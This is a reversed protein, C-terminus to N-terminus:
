LGADRYLYAKCENSLLNITIVLELSRNKIWWSNDGDEGMTKSPRNFFRTRRKAYDDQMMETLKEPTVLPCVLETLNRTYSTDSGPVNKEMIEILQNFLENDSKEMSKVVMGVYIILLVALSYTIIKLKSKHREIFNSEEDKASIRAWDRKNASSFILFIMLLVFAILLAFVILSYHYALWFILWIYLLIQFLIPALFFIAITGLLLFAVKILVKRNESVWGMM